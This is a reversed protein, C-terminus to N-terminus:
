MGKVQLAGLFQQFALQPSFVPGLCDSHIQLQPAEQIVRGGSSSMKVKNGSEYFLFLAM